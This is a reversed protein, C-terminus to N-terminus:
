ASDIRKPGEEGKVEDEDTGVPVVGPGKHRRTLLGGGNRIRDQVVEHVLEATVPRQQAAFGYVLALDCLNNILRPIGGSQHHVFRRAAPEILEEDGGAVALRHRIYADTEEAELPGLHYDVAVRQAFQELEPRRLVERLEPQGSLVLQLVQDKDANVNSIVRLEELTAPDMNQAEDVILLTQQGQAYRRILFDVFQRYLAAESQGEFPLDFALSIWELLNGFARHTNSILGVETGEDLQNLLHRLLTTKGAGIEGTLVTIPAQNCIGYELLTYATSHRRGLYLFEPDPQLTFPRERLGYFDLYM